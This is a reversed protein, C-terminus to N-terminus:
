NAKSAGAKSSAAQSAGWPGGHAPGVQYRCCSGCFQGGSGRGGVGVQVPAQRLGAHLVDACPGAEGGGLRLGAEELELLAWLPRQREHSDGGGARAVPLGAEQEAGGHVGRAQGARKWAGGALLQAAQEHV